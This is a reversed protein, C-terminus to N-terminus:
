ATAINLDIKINAMFQHWFRSTLRPDRDSVISTPFSHVSFIREILINATKVATINQSVPILYTFGTFRDLVVLILEKENDSPFPGAFDRAILSVLERPVPLPTIIGDPLTTPQKNMQCLHCRRIYDKFDTRMTMWYFHHSANKFCKQAGMHAM